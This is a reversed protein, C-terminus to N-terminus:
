KIEEASPQEKELEKKIINYSEILSIHDKQSLLLSPHALALGINEFAQKLTLTQNEM